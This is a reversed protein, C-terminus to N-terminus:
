DGVKALRQAATLAEEIRLRLEPDSVVKLCELLLGEVSEEDKRASNFYRKGALYWTLLVRAYAELGEANAKAIGLMLTLFGEASDNELLLNLFEEIPVSPRLKDRSCLARYALWVKEEVRFGTQVKM